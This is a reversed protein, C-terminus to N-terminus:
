LGKNFYLVDPLNNFKSQAEEYKQPEFQKLTVLGISSKQPFLACGVPVMILLFCGIMVTQFPMHLPRMQSFWRQKELRDMIVPMVLMGPAAIAIRSTTVQSIGKVAAYKSDCIRNKNEDHLSIGETLESQRMLPINVMNAASVAIFPVFRQLLPSARKGLFRKFGVATVVACSTASVYATTIQMPTIDSAANRNTYNVLANFTQNVWQWFIVAATSKYFHLMTATILMGGPLQFSMRGVVNQLEGSDPHFSSEFLKKAYCIEKYTTGEPEEGARYKEILEKADYLQRTPVVVTRFDTMWFFYKLRGLFTRQDWLPEDINIRVEKHRVVDSMAM